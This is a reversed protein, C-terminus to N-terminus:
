RSENKDLEAYWNSAICFADWALDSGIWNADEDVLESDFLELYLVPHLEFEEGEIVLTIQGNENLEAM